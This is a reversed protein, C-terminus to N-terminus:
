AAKQNTENAVSMVHDAIASCIMRFDDEHYLYAARDKTGEFGLSALFERSVTFGIRKSISGLSLTPTANSHPDAAAQMVVVPGAAVVNAAVTTVPELARIKAREAEIIRDAEAKAKADAEAQIRARTEEERKAIEAAHDAIRQKVTLAVFDCDRLVLARVDAFMARHEPHENIVDLNARIKRAIENTEIKVRALETDVANQISTMTKLGKIASGFDAAPTPMYPAEPLAAAFAALDKQAKTVIALRRSEKEAKVLKELALRNSRALDKLTAKLTRMDDICAVQALAASEAADLAEEAKTLTKIASECVAFEEDTEPKTPTREIFSRLADGFKSLNDTVALSGSVQVFVSPLGEVPAAAPKDAVVSAPDFAAIDREFQAWGALVAARHDPHADAEYWCYAMNQETGDSVMFLCKKAGSVIMQHAVQPWHTDPIDGTQNIHDALEANWLKHELCLDECLTLGDFSALLPMGEIIEAGTCPYLEEGIIQEAIPRAAAEAAHGKDFLAQTASSVDASVGTKKMALLDNRTMYKSLGMMAPAESACLHQMRAAHWEKSGQILNLVQM